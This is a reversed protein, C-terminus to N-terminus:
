IFYIFKIRFFFRLSRVYWDREDFSIFVDYSQEYMM